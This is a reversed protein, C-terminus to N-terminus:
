IAGHNLIAAFTAVLAACTGILLLLAPLRLEKEKRSRWWMACGRGGFVMASFFPLIVPWDNAPTVHLQHAAFLLGFSGFFTTIIMGKRSTLQYTWAGLVLLAIAAALSGVIKPLKHPNHYDPITLEITAEVSYGLM